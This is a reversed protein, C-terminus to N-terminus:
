LVAEAGAILESYTAIQRASVGRWLAAVLAPAPEFLVSVAESLAEPSSIESFAPLMTQNPLLDFIESTPKQPV